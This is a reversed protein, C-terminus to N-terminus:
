KENSSNDKLKPAFKELGVMGLGTCVIWQFSDYIFQAIQLGFFMNGIFAVIMMVLAIGTVLRKSSLGGEHDQFFESLAEKIKM